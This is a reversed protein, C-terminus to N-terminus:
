NGALYSRGCRDHEDNVGAHKGGPQAIVPRVSVPSSIPKASFQEGGGLDHVELNDGHKPSLQSRPADIYPPGCKRQVVEGVQWELADGMEWEQL